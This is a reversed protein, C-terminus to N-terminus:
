NLKLGSQGHVCFIGIEDILSIVERLFFKREVFVVKLKMVNIQHFQYFLVTRGELKGIQRLNRAIDFTGFVPKTRRHLFVFVLAFVIITIAGFTRM